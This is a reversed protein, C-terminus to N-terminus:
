FIRPLTYAIFALSREQNECASIYNDLDEQQQPPLSERIKLYAPEYEEVLQRMQQHWADEEARRFLMKLFLDMDFEM